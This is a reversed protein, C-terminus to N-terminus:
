DTLGFVEATFKFRVEEEDGGMLEQLKIGSEKVFDGYSKGVGKEDDFPMMTSPTKGLNQKRYVDKHVMCTRRKQPKGNVTEDVDEEMLGSVIISEDGLDNHCFTFRLGTCDKQALVRLISEKGFEVACRQNNLYEMLAEASNGQGSKIFAKKLAILKDGVMRRFAAPTISRGFGLSTEDEPLDIEIHAEVNWKKTSEDYDLGSDTVFKNKVPKQEKNKM